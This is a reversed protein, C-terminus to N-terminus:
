RETKGHMVFNETHYSLKPEEFEIM